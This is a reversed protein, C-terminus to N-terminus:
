AAERQDYSRLGGRRDRRMVHGMHGGATGEPVIRRNGLGQHNREPHYHTLYAHIVPYLSREGLVSM